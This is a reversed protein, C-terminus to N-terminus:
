IISGWIGRFSSCSFTTSNTLLVLNIEVPTQGTLCGALSMRNRVKVPESVEFERYGIEIRYRIFGFKLVMIQVHRFGWFFDTLARAVRGSIVPREPVWLPRCRLWCATTTRISKNLFASTGKEGRFTFGNGRRMSIFMMRMRCALCHQSKADRILMSCRLARRNTRQWLCVTINKM